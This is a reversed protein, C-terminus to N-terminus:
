FNYGFSVLFGVKNTRDSWYVSGELPGIFSDYGYTLGFGFFNDKQFINKLKDSNLAFNGTLSVYQNAGIRQQLKLASVVTVQETMEMYSIGM